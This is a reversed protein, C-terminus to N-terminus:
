QRAVLSHCVTENQKRNQPVLLCKLFTTLLSSINIEASCINIYYGYGSNLSIQISENVVRLEYFFM